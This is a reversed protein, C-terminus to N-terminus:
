TFINYKYKGGRYDTGTLIYEDYVTCKEYIPLNHIQGEKVDTGRYPKHDTNTELKRAYSLFVDFNPDFLNNIMYDTQYDDSKNPEKEEKTNSIGRLYQLNSMVQTAGMLAAGVTGAALASYSLAATFSM